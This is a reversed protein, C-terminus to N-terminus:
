EVARNEREPRVDNAKLNAAVLTWYDVPEIDDIDVLGWRSQIEAVVADVNYLDAESQLSQLVQDRLDRDTIM